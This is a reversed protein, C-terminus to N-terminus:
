NQMDFELDIAFRYNELDWSDFEEWVWLICLWSEHKKSSVRPKLGNVRISHNLRPKWCLINGVANYNCCPVTVIDTWLSRLTWPTYCANIRFVGILRTHHWPVALIDNLTLLTCLIALDCFRKSLKVIIEVLYHVWNQREETNLRNWDTPRCLNLEDDGGFQVDWLFLVKWDKKRHWWIITSWLCIIGIKYANATPPRIPRSQTTGQEVNNPCSGTSIILIFFM